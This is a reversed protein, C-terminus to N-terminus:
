KLSGLYAVLDEIQAPTLRQGFPPMITPYGPVGGYQSGQKIHERIYEAGTVGPKRTAARTGVGALDPARRGGQGAVAHCAFCAVSRDWFIAKGREEPPLATQGPQLRPVEFQPYLQGIAVLGGVTFAYVLAVNGLVAHGGRPPAVSTPRLLEFFLTTAVVFATFFLQYAIGFSLGLDAPLLPPVGWLAVLLVAAAVLRGRRAAAFRRLTSM